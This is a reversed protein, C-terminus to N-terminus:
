RLQEAAGSMHIRLEKAGASVPSTTVKGGPWRVWLSQLVANTPASLVPVASDQSWYGSGAHIERAPGPGQETVLRVVAGVAERNGPPGVLRVRLGPRATTNRFLRTPAANQGVVLDVRGDGDFDSAAAGRQEGYILLGSEQGPVPTLGGRGDGRLLLGRGADYRAIDPHVAFFNQSLFADERGDGDFDAVSVGFAPSIQAEVPLARAEFHDGRNLFLTTELHNADHMPAVKLADSYLGDLSLKAYNEWTGVAERVLPMAGGVSQFSQIPMWKQAAPEFYSEVIEVTGDGDFDATYARLPHARFRECKTNRGWNSALLDMRGDGDFDGAAVGNWWGRFKDLGLRGTIESFRGRDNSFVRLPGWECALVLEPFGGGDLDTFIAGSVLGIGSLLPDNVADPEFKGNVQRFLLSTAPLAYRGPLVRGGVFLDLDGDGDYDALALPGTSSEQGPLSDDPAGNGLGFIRAVPGNSLGDEYNASGAIIQRTGDPRSFGLVATQDRASPQDFPARVMPEFGGRGNNRFAALSGGRGSAVLLDDWGDGDLDCWSVGPGLQSLRKSLLPQRAFDDFTEDHHSHRILAAAEAFLPPPKAAAKPAAVESAASEDVGYIRNAKVGDIVSRRGSRWTVELRLNNTLSGAAFVRMTDDASLYRGGALMEQMQMPVAGGLLKVQAGIGQTNPAAGKLRVGVRPAAGDNRLLLAGSNFNNIALDLDGDNDFDAAAMGQSIGPLAFGWERSADQFRLDGLNRYALNPTDLRPYRKRLSLQDVTALRQGKKIAELRTAMDMNMGDREFGNSILLDEYGDLDVDLFMPTWTWDSAELGSLQSIEAFTGDGRALQLTNISDQPRASMEGPNAVDKSISLRQTHRLYHDPSLMDSVFLDYFGDRNIDAMDVGMSSFSVHRMALRPLARFRGSGDNLWIRDPTNFDNCIYLDPFGDGNLDRFQVAQGWDYPADRLPRGEEDLFAGGAFPVPTFLGKGDNRLLLDPQGNEESALSGRGGEVSVRFSFRNTLDPDTLPRGNVSVVKPQGDVNRITFRTNPQDRLSLLRYNTIYLDLDGDGDMDALAMSMGCRDPNLPSAPTSETFRGSGDNLFLHTGRSYSSVLLDRDGDGDLDAFAAGSADVDRRLLGAQETIDAFKWKGLNRYLRSPSDIGCFFVDTWGDGDVDACAVGSGNLYIQNTLHRLEAVVNTFRCGTEAASMVTFGPRGSGGPRVGTFRGGSIEQWSQGGAEAASALPAVLLLLCVLLNVPILWQLPNRLARQGRRARKVEGPQPPSAPDRGVVTAGRITPQTVELRTLARRDGARREPAPFSNASISNRAKFGNVQSAVADGNKPLPDPVGHFADRGTPEHFAEVFKWVRMPVIVGASDGEEGDPSLSPTLNGRVSFECLSGGFPPRTRSAMTVNVPAM